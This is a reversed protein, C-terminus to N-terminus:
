RAGREKLCEKCVWGNKKAHRSRPKIKQCDACKTRVTYALFVGASNASKAESDLVNGESSRFSGFRNIPRKM